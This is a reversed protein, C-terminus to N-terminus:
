LFKRQQDNLKIEALLDSFGLVGNLPTRIEYSMM